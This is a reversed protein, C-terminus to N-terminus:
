GVEGLLNKYRGEPSQDCWSLFEDWELANGRLTNLQRTYEVSADAFELAAWLEQNDVTSKFFRMEFTRANLCNIAQYRDYEIDLDWNGRTNGEAKHRLEGAAPEHFWGWSTERRALKVLERSNRYILMLWAEVHDASRVRNRRFANRSVHIHLGNEEDDYCGNARLVALLDDFKYGKAWTLTMPHTVIELGGISSDEKVYLHNEVPDIQTVADTIDDWDGEVELEMGLLVEAPYNGKPRFSRPRYGDSYVM